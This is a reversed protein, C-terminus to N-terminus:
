RPHPQRGRHQGGRRECRTGRAGELGHLRALDPVVNPPVGLTSRRKANGPVRDQKEPKKPEPPNTPRVGRLGEPEDKREELKVVATRREGGRLYTIRATSGVGLSAIRRILARVTQVKQGNVETIVDGTQLGARAAPGTESTLERVVVGEGEGIGNLRAIQPTMEGPNVGLFGRRVKGDTVLQNYIDAATSSPLAFGIGSYV